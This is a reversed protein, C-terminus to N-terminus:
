KLLIMKRCIVERDTALQYFYIGTSVLNGMYDKGDWWATHRGGVQPGKYLTCIRQGLINYISLIIERESIGMLEYEFITQSNFPNPYNQFLIDHEMPVPVDPEDEAATPLLSDGAYVFVTGRDGYGLWRGSIVVDDVGDGDFDGAPGISGGFHLDVPPWAQNYPMILDAQTNMDYSGYYIYVIGGGGGYAPLGVGIDDWGDHNIDGINAIRDGRTLDDLTDGLIKPITDFPDGGYYICPWTTGGGVAFDDYGDKNIDGLSEIYEGFTGPKWDNCSPTGFRYDVASDLPYEGLVINVFSLTDADLYSTFAYDALGNNDIDGIVSAKFFNRYGDSSKNVLLSNDELTDLLTGGYFIRFKGAYPSNLPIDALILDNQEDGNVDGSSINKGLYYSSDCNPYIIMDAETKSFFGASGCWIEVSLSCDGIWPKAFAFDKIGDGNIDSIWEFQTYYCPIAMDYITDPPNGGKFVLVRKDTAMEGAFVESYGDGYVDGPSYCGTALSANTSDSHFAAILRLPMGARASTWMSMLALLMFLRNIRPM